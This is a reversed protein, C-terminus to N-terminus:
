YTAMSPMSGQVGHLFIKEGSIWIRDREDIDNALLTASLADTRAILITPVGEVDAALRAAVLEPSTTSNNTVLLFPLGHRRAAALFDGSGAIPESGTYVVGDLDILLGRLSSWHVAM